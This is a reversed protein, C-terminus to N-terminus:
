TDLQDRVAEQPDYGAVETAEPTGSRLSTFESWRRESGFTMGIYGRDSVNIHPARSLGSLTFSAEQISSVYLYSRILAAILEEVSTDSDDAERQLQRYVTPPLSISYRNPDSEVSRQESGNIRYGTILAWVTVSVLALAAVIGAVGLIWAILELM